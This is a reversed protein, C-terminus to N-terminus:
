LVWHALLVGYVGYSWSVVCHTDEKTIDGELWSTM